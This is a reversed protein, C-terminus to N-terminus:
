GIFRGGHMWAEALTADLGLCLLILRPRWSPPARCALLVILMNAFPNALVIRHISMVSTSCALLFTVLLLSSEMRWGIRFGWAILAIELLAAISLHLTRTHTFGKWIWLIPLRAQHGWAVQAHAFALGDGVLADLFFIFLALGVAGALVVVAGEVLRTPRDAKGDPCPALAHCAGAIIVCFLGTPRMLCLACALLAAGMTWGRAMAMVCGLLLVGYLCETYPLRYWFGTPLVMFTVIRFLGDAGGDGVRGRMYSAALLVLVPFLVANIAFGAGHAGLGTAGMVGRLMLPYLPFFAWAAQGFDAPGVRPPVDYGQRAIQEYWACDWHCMANAVGGQPWAQVALILLLLVHLPVIWVAGDRWLGPWWARARGIVDGTM